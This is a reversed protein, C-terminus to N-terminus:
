PESVEIQRQRGFCGMYANEYQDNSEDPSCQKSAVELISVFISIHSNELSANRHDLCLFYKTLSIVYNHYYFLCRQSAFEQM